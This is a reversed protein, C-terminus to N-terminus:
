GAQCIRPEDRSDVLHQSGWLLVTFAALVITAITTVHENSAHTVRDLDM